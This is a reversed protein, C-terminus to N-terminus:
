LHFKKSSAKIFSEEPPLEPPNGKLELLMDRMNILMDRDLQSFPTVCLGGENRGNRTIMTRTMFDFSIYTSGGQASYHLSLVYDNDKRIQYQNNFQDKV